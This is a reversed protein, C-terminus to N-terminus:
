FPFFICLIGCRGSGATRHQTTKSMDLWRCCNSKLELSCFVRKLSMIPSGTWRLTARLINRFENSVFPASLLMGLMPLVWRTIAQSSDNWDYLKPNIGCIDNCGQKTIYLGDPQPEWVTGHFAYQKFLTSSTQFEVLCNTFTLPMEEFIKSPM